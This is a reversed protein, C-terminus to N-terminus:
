YGWVEIQDVHEQIIPDVDRPRLVGITDITKGRGNIKIDADTITSVETIFNMQLNASTLLFIICGLSLSYIIATLKNKRRHTVMNKKLVTRM